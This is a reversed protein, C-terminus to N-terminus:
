SKLCKEIKVARRENSTGLIGVFGPHNALSLRVQNMWEPPLSVVDGPKLEALQGAPLQIAPLEATVQIQLDDFLSNWKSPATKAAADPKEVNNGDTNLKLTLPELM